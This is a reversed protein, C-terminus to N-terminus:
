NIEYKGKSNCEKHIFEFEDAEAASLKTAQLFNPLDAIQFLQYTPVNNHWDIVEKPTNPQYNTIPVGLVEGGPNCGRLNCEGIAQKLSDAEAIVIGLCKGEVAFSLWWRMVVEMGVGVM